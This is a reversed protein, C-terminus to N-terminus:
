PAAHSRRPPTSSSPVSLRHRRALGRGGPVTFRRRRSRDILFWPANPRSTPRTPEGSSCRLHCRPLEPPPRKSARRRFHDIACSRPSPGRQRAAPPLCLTSRSDPAPLTPTALGQAVPAPLRVRAPCAPCGGRPRPGDAAVTAHTCPRGAARGGPEGDRGAQLDARRPPRATALMGGLLPQGPTRARARRLRRRDVRAHARRVHGRRYVTRCGHGPLDVALLRRGPARQVVPGM